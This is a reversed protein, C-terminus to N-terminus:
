SGPNPVFSGGSSETRKRLCMKQWENSVGEGAGTLSFGKFNEFMGNRDGDALRQM